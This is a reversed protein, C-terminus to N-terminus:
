IVRATVITYHDGLIPAKRMDYANSVGNGGSDVQEIIVVVIPYKNRLWELRAWQMRRLRGMRKAALTIGGQLDSDGVGCAGRLRAVQACSSYMPCGLM